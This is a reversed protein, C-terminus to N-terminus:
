PSHLEVNSYAFLCYCVIEYILVLCQTMASEDSKMEHYGAEVVSESVRVFAEVM